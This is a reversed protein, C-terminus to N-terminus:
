VKVWYRDSM